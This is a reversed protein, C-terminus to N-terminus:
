CLISDIRSKIKNLYLDANYYKRATELAASRYIDKQEDFKKLAGSINEPTFEPLYIFPAQKTLPHDINTMVALGSWLYAAIKGSSFLLGQWNSSDSMKKYLALGVDFQSLFAAHQSDDMYNNIISINHHSKTSSIIESLYKECGTAQGQIVLNNISSLSAAIFEKLYSYEHIYGSYILNIKEEKKISRPKNQVPILSVPLYEFNFDRGLYKTLGNRREESQIILFACKSLLENIYHKEISSCSMQDEAELSLYIVRSLPYGLAYLDNLGYWEGAIILEYNNLRKRLRNLAIRTAIPNFIAKDIRAYIHRVIKGVINQPMSRIANLLNRWAQPKLEIIPIGNLQINRGINTTSYVLIEVWMNQDKLYLAISKVTPSVETEFAGFIAIRKNNQRNEKM